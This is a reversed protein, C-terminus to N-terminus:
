VLFADVILRAAESYQETTIAKQELALKNEMDAVKWGEEKITNKIFDIYQEHNLTKMITLEREKTGVNYVIKKRNDVGKRLNRM